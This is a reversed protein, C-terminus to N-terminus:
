PVHAYLNVLIWERAGVPGLKEDLYGVFEPRERLLYIGLSELAERDRAEVDGHCGTTGSGCVM